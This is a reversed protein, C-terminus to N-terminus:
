VEISHLSLSPLNYSFLHKILFKPFHFLIVRGLNYDCLELIDMSIGLAIVPLYLLINCHEINSVLCQHVHLCEASLQYSNLSMQSIWLM